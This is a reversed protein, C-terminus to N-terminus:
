VVERPKAVVFGGGRPLIEQPILSASLSKRRAVSIGLGSCNALM